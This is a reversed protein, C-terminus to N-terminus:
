PRQEGSQPPAEDDEERHREDRATGCGRAALQAALHRAEANWAEARAVMREREASREEESMAIVRRYEGHLPDFELAAIDDRVAHLHRQVDDMARRLDAHRADLTDGHLLLSPTPFSIDRLIRLVEEKWERLHALFDLLKHRSLHVRGGHTASALHWIEKLRSENQPAIDCYRPHRALADPHILRALRRFEVEAEKREENSAPQLRGKDRLSSLHLLLNYDAQTGQESDLLARRLEPEIRVLTGADDAAHLDRQLRLNLEEPTLTPDDLAVRYRLLAVRHAAEVLDVVARGAIVLYQMRTSELEDVLQQRLAHLQDLQTEELLWGRKDSMFAAREAAGVAALTTHEHEHRAALAAVQATDLKDCALAHQEIVLLELEAVSLNAVVTGLPERMRALLRQWSPRDFAGARNSENLSPEARLLKLLLAVTRYACLGAAAAAAVVLPARTAFDPSAQRVHQVLPRAAPHAAAISELEAFLPAINM